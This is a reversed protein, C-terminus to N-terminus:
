IHPELVDLLLGVRKWIQNGVDSLRPDRGTHSVGKAQSLAERPHALIYQQQGRDSCGLWLDVVGALEASALAERRMADLVEM